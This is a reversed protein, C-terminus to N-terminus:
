DGRQRRGTGDEDRQARALRRPATLHDVEGNDLRNQSHKASLWRDVILETDHLLAGPVAGAIVRWAIDILGGVAAPDRDRGAGVAHSLAHHAQHSAGVHDVFWPKPRSSAAGRM